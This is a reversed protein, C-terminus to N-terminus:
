RTDKRKQDDRWGELPWSRRFTCSSGGNENSAACTVQWRSRWWQPHNNAKARVPCEHAITSLAQPSHPTLPDPLGAPLPMSLKGVKAWFVGLIVWKKSPRGQWIRERMCLQSSRVVYVTFYPHTGWSSLATISSSSSSPCKPMSFRGVCPECANAFRKM